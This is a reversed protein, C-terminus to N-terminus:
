LLLALSRTCTEFEAVGVRVDIIMMEWLERDLLVTPRGRVRGRVAFLFHDFSGDEDSSGRAEDAGLHGQEGELDIVIDLEADSAWCLNLRETLNEGFKGVTYVIDDHGVVCLCLCQICRELANFKHNM